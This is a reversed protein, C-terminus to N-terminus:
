AAISMSADQKTFEEFPWRHLSVRTANYALSCIALTSLIHVSVRSMSRTHKHAHTHTHTHIIEKSSGYVAEIHRIDASSRVARVCSSWESLRDITSGPRSPGACVFAGSAGCWGGGRESVCVCVGVVEM